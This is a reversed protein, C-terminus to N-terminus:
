SEIAKLAVQAKDAAYMLMNLDRAADGEMNRNEAYSAEFVMVADLLASLHFVLVEAKDSM